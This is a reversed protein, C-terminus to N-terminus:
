VPFKGCFYKLIQIQIEEIEEYLTNTEQNRKSKFGM